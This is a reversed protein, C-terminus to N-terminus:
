LGGPRTKIFESVLLMTLLQLAVNCRCVKDRQNKYMEGM